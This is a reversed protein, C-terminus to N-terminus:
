FIWCNKFSDYKNSSCYAFVSVLRMQFKQINKRKSCKQNHPTYSVYGYQESSQFFEQFGTLFLWVNRFTIEKRDKNSTLKYISTAEGSCMYHNRYSM